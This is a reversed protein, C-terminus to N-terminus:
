TTTSNLACTVQLPQGNSDLVANGNSDPLTITVNVVVYYSYPILNASTILALNFTDIPAGTL